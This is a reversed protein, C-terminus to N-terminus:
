RASNIFVFVFCFFGGFMSKKKGIKSWSVCLLLYFVFRKVQAACWVATWVGPSCQVTMSRHWLEGQLEKVRAQDQWTVQFTVFDLVSLRVSTLANKLVLVECWKEQYLLLIEEWAESLRLFRSCILHECKEILPCHLYQSPTNMNPCM